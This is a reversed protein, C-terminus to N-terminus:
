KNDNEISTDLGGLLSQVYPTAMLRAVAAATAIGGAVWPWTQDLGSASVLSPLAVAFGAVTQIGTRITVKTSKKM